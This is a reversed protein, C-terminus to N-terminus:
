SQMRITPWRKAMEGVMLILIITFISNNKENQTPESNVGDWTTFSCLLIFGRIYFFLTMPTITLQWTEFITPSQLYGTRKPYTMCRIRINEFLNTCLQVGPQSNFSSIGTQCGWNAYSFSGEHLFGKKPEKRLWAPFNIAVSFHSVNFYLSWVLALFVPWWQESYGLTIRDYSFLVTIVSSTM